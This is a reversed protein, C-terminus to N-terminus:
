NYLYNIPVSMNMYMCNLFPMQHHLTAGGGKKPCGASAHPAKVVGRYIEAFRCHLSNRKCIKKSVFLWRSYSKYTMSTFILINAWLLEVVNMGREGRRSNKALKNELQESGLDMRDM